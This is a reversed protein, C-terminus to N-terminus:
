HSTASKKRLRGRKGYRAQYREGFSREPHDACGMAGGLIYRDRGIMEAVTKEAAKTAGESRRKVSLKAANRSARGSVTNKVAKFAKKLLNMPKKLM